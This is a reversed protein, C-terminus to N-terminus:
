NVVVQSSHGTGLLTGKEPLDHAHCPSAIPSLPPRGGSTSPAGSPCAPRGYIPRKDEDIIVFIDKSSTQDPSDSTDIGGTLDCPAFDDPPPDAPLFTPAPEIGDLTSIADAHKAYWQEWADLADRLISILEERTALPHHSKPLLGENRLQQLYQHITSLSGHGISKYIGRITVDHGNALITEAARFVDSDTIPQAREAKKLHATNPVNPKSNPPHGIDRQLPHFFDDPHQHMTVRM